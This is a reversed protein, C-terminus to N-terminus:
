LAATKGLLLTTTLDIVCRVMSRAWHEALAARALAARTPKLGMDCLHTQLAMGDGLSSSRPTPFQAPQHVVHM